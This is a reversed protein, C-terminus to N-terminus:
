RRAILLRYVAPQRKGSPQFFFRRCPATGGPVPGRGPCRAASSPARLCLPRPFPCSCFRRCLAPGNMPVPRRLGSARSGSCGNGRRSGQGPDEPRVARGGPHFCGAAADSLVPGRRAERLLPSRPGEGCLPHPLCEQRSDARHATYVRSHLFFSRFLARSVTGPRKKRNIFSIMPSRAFAEPRTGSARTGM